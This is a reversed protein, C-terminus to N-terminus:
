KSSSEPVTTSATASIKKGLGKYKGILEECRSILSECVNKEIQKDIYSNIETALTNASVALTNFEDYLTADSNQSATLSESVENSVNKLEDYKESFVSLRESSAYNSVHACGAFLCIAILLLVPLVFKKKMIKETIASFAIGCNNFSGRPCKRFYKLM